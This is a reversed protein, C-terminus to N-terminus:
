KGKINATGFSYPVGEPDREDYSWFGGWERGKIAIVIVKPNLLSRFSDVVKRMSPKEYDKYWAKREDYRGKAVDMKHKMDALYKDYDDGLKPPAASEKKARATHYSCYENWSMWKKRSDWTRKASQMARKATLETSEDLWAWLNLYEAATGAFWAGTGGRSVIQIRQSPDMSQTTELLTM